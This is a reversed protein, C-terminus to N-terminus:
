PASARSCNASTSRSPSTTTPAPTSGAVRAEVADRATLMLVPVDSGAARLERCLAPRGQGAAHRRPHRCRLRNQQCQDRRRLATQPSTSRMGPKACGRRSLAPPTRSMRSWSSGCSVLINASQASNRTVRPPPNRTRPEPESNGPEPSRIRRNWNRHEPNPLNPLNPDGTKRSRRSEHTAARRERVARPSM